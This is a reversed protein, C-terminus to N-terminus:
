CNMCYFLSSVVAAFLDPDERKTGRRGKKERVRNGERMRRRRGKGEEKGQKVELGGEMAESEM